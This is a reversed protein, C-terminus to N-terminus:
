IHDTPWCFDGSAPRALTEIIRRGSGSLPAMMLIARNRRLVTGRPLVARACPPPLWGMVRRLDGAAARLLAAVTTPSARDTWGFEDFIFADREPARVGFVYAVIEGRRKVALNMPQGSPTESDQRLRTAIWEWTAPSREFSAHARRRVNEHCKRITRWQEPALTSLQLREGPLADARLRLGRSPLMRFGLDAYFQPRIDSFLYAVDFGRDRALDLVSALMLSAYGRGRLDEPTFVAGFGVARLTQSEHQLTREYWKHSAVLRKGDYLGMTAYSRRGYATRALETTQAVYERETRRGAWLPATLPLVERAYAASSIPQLRM